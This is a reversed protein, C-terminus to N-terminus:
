SGCTESKQEEKQIEKKTVAEKLYNKNKDYKGVLLILSDYPKIDANLPDSVEEGNIYAHIGASTNISYDINHFLDKWQAGNRHVHVVTGVQDHLHAKEFQENEPGSHDGCPILSMYKLNSFDQLRGDIYVKFGAHIHINAHQKTYAYIIVWGLLIVFIIITAVRVLQNNNIRMMGLVVEPTSYVIWAIWISVVNILITANKINRVQAVGAHIM